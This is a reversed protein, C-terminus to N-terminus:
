GARPQGNVHLKQETILIAPRCTRLWGTSVVAFIDREPTFISIISSAVLGHQDLATRIQGVDQEAPEGVLEVGDYGYRALRAIGEALPERGYALTNYTYRFM